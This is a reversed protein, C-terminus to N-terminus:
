KKKANEYITKATVVGVFWHPFLAEVWGRADAPVPEYGFCVVLGFLGTCIIVPLGLAIYWRYTESVKALWPPNHKKVEEILLWTLYGSGGDLVWQLAGAFTKVDM